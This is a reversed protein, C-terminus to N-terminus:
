RRSFLAAENAFMMVLQQQLYLSAFSDFFQTRFCACTFCVFPEM